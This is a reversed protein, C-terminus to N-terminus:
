EGYCFHNLGMGPTMWDFAKRPSKSPVLQVVEVNEIRTDQVKDRVKVTNDTIDNEKNESEEMEVDQSVLKKKKRKWLNQWIKEMKEMRHEVQVEVEERGTESKVTEAKEEAKEGGTCGVAESVESCPLQM